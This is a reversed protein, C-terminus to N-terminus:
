VMHRSQAFGRAFDCALRVVGSSEGVVTYVTRHLPPTLCQSTKHEIRQAVLAEFFHLPRGIGTEPFRPKAFLHAGIDM